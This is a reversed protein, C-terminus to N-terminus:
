VAMLAAKEDLMVGLKWLVMEQSHPYDKQIVVFAELFFAVL